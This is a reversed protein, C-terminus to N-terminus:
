KVDSGKTGLIFQLDWEEHIGDPQQAEQLHAIVEKKFQALVRSEMHELSYRTGHTWKADWWQQADAYVFEAQLDLVQVDVFGTRALYM